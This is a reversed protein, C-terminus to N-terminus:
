WRWGNNTGGGCGPAIMEDHCLDRPLTAIVVTPRPRAPTLADDGGDYITVSAARAREDAGAGTGNRPDDAPEEEAGSM